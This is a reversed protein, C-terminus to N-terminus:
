NRSRAAPKSSRRSKSFTVVITGLRDEVLPLLDALDRDIDTAPVVLMVTEDEGLQSLAERTAETDTDLV